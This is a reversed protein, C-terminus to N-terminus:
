WPKVFMPTRPMDLVHQPTRWIGGMHWSTALELTIDADAFVEMGATQTANVLVTKVVQGGQFYIEAFIRDVFVRIEFQQSEPFITVEDMMFAMHQARQPDKTGSGM